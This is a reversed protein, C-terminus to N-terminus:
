DICSLMEVHEKERILVMGDPTPICPAVKILFYDIKILPIQFLINYKIEKFSFRQWITFVM